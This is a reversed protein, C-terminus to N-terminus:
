NAIGAHMVCMGHHMDPDSVQLPLSITGANGACACGAIKTDPLLDMHFM